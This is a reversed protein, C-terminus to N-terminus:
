TPAFCRRWAVMYAAELRVASPLSAANLM